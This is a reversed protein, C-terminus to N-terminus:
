IVSIIFIYTKEPYAEILQIHNKNERFLKLELYTAPSDRLNDLKNINFVNIDNKFHLIISEKFSTM